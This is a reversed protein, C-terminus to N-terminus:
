DEWEIVYPNFYSGADFFGDDDDFDLYKPKITGKVEGNEDEIVYPNFYSGEDFFNDDPVLDFYKPRITWEAVALSPVLMFLVLIIIFIKRM